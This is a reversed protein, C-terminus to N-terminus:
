VDTVERAWTHCSRVWLHYQTWNTNYRKNNVRNYYGRNVQPLNYCNASGEHVISGSVYNVERPRSTDLLYRWYESIAGAEDAAFFGSRWEIDIDTGRKVYGAVDTHSFWLFRWNYGELPRSCTGIYYTLPPAPEVVTDDVYICYWTWGGQLDDWQEGAVFPFFCIM